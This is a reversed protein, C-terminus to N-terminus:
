LGDRDRGFLLYCFDDRIIAEPTDGSTKEARHRRFFPKKNRNLIM